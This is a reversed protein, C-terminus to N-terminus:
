KKAPPQFRREVMGNWADADIDIARTDRQIPIAFSTPDAFRLPTHSVLHQHKNITTSLAVAYPLRLREPKKADSPWQVLLRQRGDVNAAQVRLEDLAPKGFAPTVTGEPTILIQKVESALLVRGRDNSEDIRAGRGAGRTLADASLICDASGDNPEGWWWLEVRTGDAAKAGEIEIVLSTFDVWAMRMLLPSGAATTSTIVETHRRPGPAADARVELWVPMAMRKWDFGKAMILPADAFSVDTTDPSEGNEGLAVQFLKKRPDLRCATYSAGGTVVDTAATWGDSRGWNLNLRWAASSEYAELAVAPALRWTHANDWRWSSGGSIAHKLLGAKADLEVSEEGGGAGYGLIGANSDAVIFRVDQVKAGQHQVRFYGIGCGGDTRMDENAPPLPKDDADMECLPWSVVSVEPQGAATPVRGVYALACARRGCITKKLAADNLPFPSGAALASTAALAAPIALWRM